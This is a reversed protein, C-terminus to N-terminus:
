GDDLAAEAVEVLAGDRAIRVLADAVQERRVAEGVVPEGELIEGRAIVEQEAPVERDLADEGELPEIGPRALLHRALELGEDLSKSRFRNPRGAGQAVM